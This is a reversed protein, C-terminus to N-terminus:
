DVRITQAGVTLLPHRQGGNAVAPSCNMSFILQLVIVNIARNIYRNIHFGAVASKALGLPHSVVRRIPSIWKILATPPVFPDGNPPRTSFIHNNWIAEVGYKLIRSQKLLYWYLKRFTENFFIGWFRGTQTLWINFQEKVHLKLWIQLRWLVCMQPM